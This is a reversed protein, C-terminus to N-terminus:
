YRGYDWGNYNHDKKYGGAYERNRHRDRNYKHTYTRNRERSERSYERHYRSNDPYSNNRGEYEDRSCSSALISFLSLLVLVKKM